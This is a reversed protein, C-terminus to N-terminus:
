EGAVLDYVPTADFYVFPDGEGVSKSDIVYSAEGFIPQDAEDEWSGFSADIDLQYDGTPFLGTAILLSGDDLVYAQSTTGLVIETGDHTEWGIEVTPNYSVNLLLFSSFYRRLDDMAQCFLAVIWVEGSSDLTANLATPRAASEGSADDCGAAEEPAEAAEEPAEAAAEAQADLLVDGLAEADGALGTKGGCSAVATLMLMTLLAVFWGSRLLKIM